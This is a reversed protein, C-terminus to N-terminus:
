IGRKKRGKRARENQMVQRKQELLKVMYKLEKRDLFYGEYLPFCLILRDGSEYEPDRHTWQLFLEAGNLRTIKEFREYGQEGDFLYSSCFQKGKSVTELPHATFENKWYQYSLCHFTTMFFLGRRPQQELYQFEYFDYDLIFYYRDVREFLRMVKQATVCCDRFAKKGM